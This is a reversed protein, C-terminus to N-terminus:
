DSFYAKGNPLRIKKGTAKELDRLMNRDFGDFLVDFIRFKDSDTTIWLVPNFDPGSHLTIKKINKISIWKSGLTQMKIENNKIEIVKINGNGNWIFYAAITCIALLIIGIASLGAREQSADFLAIITILLPMTVLAACICLYLLPCIKRKYTKM